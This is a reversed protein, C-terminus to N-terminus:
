ILTNKSNSERANKSAVSVVQRRVDPAGDRLAQCVKEYAGKSDIEAWSFHGTTKERKVFRSGGSRLLDLIKMAIHPKDCRRACLYTAQYEQVMDRFIQNGYHYNTPAGRGTVIDLEQLEGPSPPREARPAEPPTVLPKEEVPSRRSQPSHAPIAGHYPPPSYRHQGPPAEYRPRGYTPPPTPPPPCYHYTGRPTPPPPPIGELDDDIYGYYFREDEYHYSQRSYYPRSVPCPPPLLEREQPLTLEDTPPNIEEQIPSPRYGYHDRPSPTKEVGDDISSQLNPNLPQLPSVYNGRLTSTEAIYDAVPPYPPAMRM